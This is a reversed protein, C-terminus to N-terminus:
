PQGADINLINLLQWPVPVSRGSGGAPGPRASPGSTTLLSAWSLSGVFPGNQSSRPGYICSKRSEGVDQYSHSGTTLPCLTSSGTASVLCQISEPPHVTRGKQLRSSSATLPASPRCGSFRARVDRSWGKGGTRNPASYNLDKGGLDKQTLHRGRTTDSESM